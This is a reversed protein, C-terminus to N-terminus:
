GESRLTDDDALAVAADNVKLFVGGLIDKGEGVLNVHRFARFLMAELTM